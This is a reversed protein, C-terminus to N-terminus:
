EMPQIERFKWFRPGTCPYSKIPLSNKLRAYSWGEEELGCTVCIRRPPVGEAEVVTPHACVKKLEEALGRKEAELQRHLDNIEVIRDRKQQFDM